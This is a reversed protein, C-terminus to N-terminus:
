QSNTALTMIREQTADSRSVEGTIRGECMVLIRDCLGLLEPLDSSIVIVGIGDQVLRSMLNYIEFKVGVDIGATPEDFMLVKSNSYLWRALVVKQRNGGSLHEVHQHISPTKIRLDETFQEAVKGERKKSILFGRLLSYLNSLSINEKVTMEMILGYRNRDETLLGIGLDIAERPSRPSIEKGELFIKGSEKPDAGFIIRALESRGAGVLGAIGLIEGKHLNFNIDRLRGATLHDV